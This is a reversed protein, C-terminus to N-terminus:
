RRQIYGEFQAITIMLGEDDDGAAPVQGAGIIWALFTAFQQLRSGVITGLVQGDRCAALDCLHLLDATLAGYTTSQEAPSRRARFVQIAM